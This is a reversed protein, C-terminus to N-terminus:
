SPGGDAAVLLRAIARDIPQGTAGQFYSFGPAPNVEFCYWIGDPTRRLDIGAVPLDLAGALNRCKAGVDEALEVTRLKPVKDEAAYRYDDSDSDIACAFVDEGVIHVRVDEGAIYQQFQTPCWTVDALRGSDSPDFRRVISRTSSVSKYIVQGHEAVFDVAAQRDTTVLTAPIAFGHERILASQFPKSTNSAMAIPRNVVCAPTLDLWCTIVDEVSLAHSAEVSGPGVRQVAPMRVSEYPRLYVARIAGLDIEDDGVRLRGEVVGSVTIDVQTDLVLRQDLFAVASTMEQLVNRVVAMPEDSPLGWLLIM